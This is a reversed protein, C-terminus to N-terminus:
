FMFLKVTNSSFFSSCGVLPKSCHQRVFLDEDKQESDAANGASPIRNLKKNNVEDEYKLDAATGPQVIKLNWCLLLDQGNHV